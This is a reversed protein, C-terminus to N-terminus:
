IVSRGSFKTLLTPKALPTRRPSLEYLTSLSGVGLSGSMSLPDHSKTVLTIIITVISKIVELGM